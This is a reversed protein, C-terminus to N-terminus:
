IVDTSPKRRWRRLHFGGFAVLATGLLTLSAPEPTAAQGLVRFGVTDATLSNTTEWSDTVFDGVSATLTYTDGSILHPHLVSAADVVSITSGFAGTSPATLGTWSELVNSGSKLSLDFLPSGAGGWWVDVLIDSLNGTAGAVFSPSQPLADGLSAAYTTSKLNDYIIDARAQSAVSVLVLPVLIAITKQM